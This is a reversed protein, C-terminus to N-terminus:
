ARIIGGRIPLALGVAVGVLNAIVDSATGSREPLLAAQLLESVVAHAGFVVALVAAPLNIRRGTWVAAAFIAAHVAKDVYPVGGDVERPVYLVVVQVFIAGGFLVRNLLAARGSRSRFRYPVV